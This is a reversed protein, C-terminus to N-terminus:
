NPNLLVSLASASAGLRCGDLGKAQLVHYGFREFTVCKPQRPASVGVLGDIDTVGLDKGDGIVSVGRLPEFLDSEDERFAYVMAGWGPHLRVVCPKPPGGDSGWEFATEDGWAPQYGDAVVMWRLPAHEDIEISPKESTMGRQVSLVTLQLGYSKGPQPSHVRTDTYDLVDFKVIPQGNDADFVEFRGGFEFKAMRFEVAVSTAASRLDVSTPNWVYQSRAQTTPLVVTVTYEGFPVGRIDFSALVSRGTKDGLDKPPEVLTCRSCLERGGGVRTLCVLPPERWNAGYTSVLSGHVTGTDTPELSIQVDVTRGEIVDVIVSQPYIGDATARLKYKGPFLCGFSFEGNPATVTVDAPASFASLPIESSARELEIRVKGCRKGERDSVVGHLAGLGHLKVELPSTYAGVTGPVVISGAHLGDETAVFLTPTTGDYTAQKRVHANFRVWPVAAAHVPRWASLPKKAHRDYLAWPYQVSVNLRARLTKVDIPSDSHVVLFYTPGIAISFPRRGGAPSPGLDLKLQEEFDADPDSFRVLYPVSARIGDIVFTGDLATKCKYLPLASERYRVLEVDLWPIPQATLQDLAVCSLSTSATSRPENAEAHQPAAQSTLPTEIMPPPAEDSEGAPEREDLAVSSAHEVPASPNTREPLVLWAVAAVGCLLVITAGTLLTRRAIGRTSATRARRNM